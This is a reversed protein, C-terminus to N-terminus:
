NHAWTLLDSVAVYLGWCGAVTRLACEAPESFGLFSVPWFFGFLGSSLLTLGLVFCIVGAERRRSRAALMGIIGLAIYATSEPGTVKLYDGINGTTLGIMGLAFFLWGCLRNYLSAYM